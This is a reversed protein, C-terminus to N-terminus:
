LGKLIIQLGDFASPFIFNQPFFVDVIKDFKKEVQQNMRPIKFLINGIKVDINNCIFKRFKIVTM